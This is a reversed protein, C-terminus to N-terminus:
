GNFSFVVLRLSPLVLLEGEPNTTYYSGYTTAGKLIVRHLKDEFCHIWSGENTWNTPVPTKNWPKYTHYHDRHGRAITANEFLALKEANIKRVVDDSLRFIAVGCGEARGVGISTDEQIVVSELVGFVSPIKKEFYIRQYHKFSFYAGLLTSAFAVLFIIKLHKRM